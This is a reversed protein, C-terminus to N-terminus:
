NGSSLGGGRDIGEFVKIDPSVDGVFVRTGAATSTQAALANPKCSLRKKLRLQPKQGGASAMSSFGQGSQALLCLCADDGCSLLFECAEADGRPLFRLQTM